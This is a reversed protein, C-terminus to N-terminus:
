LLFHEVYAKFLTECQFSFGIPAASLKRPWFSNALEVSILALHSFMEQQVETVAEKSFPHRSDVHVAAVPYGARVAVELDVQPLGQVQLAVGVLDAEGVAKQGRVPAAVEVPRAPCASSPTTAAYVPGRSAAQILELKAM